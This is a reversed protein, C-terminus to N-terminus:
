PITLTTQLESYGNTGSVMHLHLVLLDGPTAPVAPGDVDASIDGQALVGADPQVTSASDASVIVVDAQGTRRWLLDVHLVADHSSQTGEAGLHYTGAPIPASM